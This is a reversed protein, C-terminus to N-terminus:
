ELCDCAMGFFFTSIFVLWLVAANVVGEPTLWSWSKTKNKTGAKSLKSDSRHHLDFSNKAQIRQIENEHQAQKQGLKVAMRRLQQRLMRKEESLQQIRDNKEQLMRLLVHVDVHPLHSVGSGESDTDQQLAKSINSRLRKNSRDTKPAGYLDSVFLQSGSDEQSSSVTLSDRSQMSVPISELFETWQPMAVKFGADFMLVYLLNADFLKACESDLMSPKEAETAGKPVIFQGCVKTIYESCRARQSLSGSAKLVDWLQKFAAIDVTCRGNEDRKIASQVAKFVSPGLSEM